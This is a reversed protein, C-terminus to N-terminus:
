EGMDCVFSELFTNAHDCSIARTEQFTPVNVRKFSDYPSCVSRLAVDHCYDVAKITNQKQKHTSDICDLVVEPLRYKQEGTCRYGKVYTPYTVCGVLWLSSIVVLLKM